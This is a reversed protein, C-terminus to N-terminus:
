KAQCPFAKQLGRMLVFGVPRDSEEPSSEIEKRLIEVLREGTPALTNPPCYLPREKREEAIDVNVWSMGTEVLLLDDALRKRAAITGADYDKLFKSADTEANATGLFLLYSFIALALRM